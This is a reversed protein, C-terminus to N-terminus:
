WAFTWPQKHAGSPATSATLIIDEMVSAPVDRDSFDRVTRRLNMFAYFSRSREQLQTADYIEKSYPIFHYEMVSPNNIKIFIVDICLSHTILGTPLLM